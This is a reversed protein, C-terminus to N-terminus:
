FLLFGILFTKDFSFTLFGFQQDKILDVASFVVLYDVSHFTLYILCIGAALGCDGIRNVVM